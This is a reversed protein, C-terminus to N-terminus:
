GALESIRNIHEVQIGVGVGSRALLSFRGQEPVTVYGAAEVVALDADIARLFAACREHELGRRPWILTSSLVDERLEVLEAAASELLERLRDEPTKGM